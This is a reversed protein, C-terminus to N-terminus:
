QVIQESGRFDSPGKGGNGTCCAVVIYGLTLAWATKSTAYYLAGITLDFQKRDRYLPYQSYVLLVNIAIAAAWWFLNAIQFSPSFRGFKPEAQLQWGYLPSTPRFSIRWTKVNERWSIGFSNTLSVMPIKFNKKRDKIYFLIDGFAIGVVYPAIRYYPRRYM